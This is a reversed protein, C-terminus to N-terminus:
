SIVIFCIYVCNSDNNVTQFPKITFFSPFIFSFQKLKRAGPLSQFHVSSLNGFNLINYIGCTKWFGLGCHSRYNKANKTDTM